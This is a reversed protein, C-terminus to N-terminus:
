IRELLKYPGIATGPYESPADATMDGVVGAAAAHPAELFSGLEHQETLLAEIRERLTMDGGCAGDLFAARELESAREMAGTFIERENMASDKPCSSSGHGMGLASDPPRSQLSIRLIGTPAIRVCWAESAGSPVTSGRGPTLGPTILPVPRSAWSRPQM